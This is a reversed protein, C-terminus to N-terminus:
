RTRETRLHVIGVPETNWVLWAYESNDSGSGVFCPRRPTVYMGSPRHARWWEAREQSGLFGVRLLMCVRVGDFRLAHEVFERALSFPPNTIILDFGPAPAVSLFDVAETRCKPFKDGHVVIAGPWAETLVDVIAHGGCAPELVRRPIGLHPVIARTLWDPTEYFDAERRM